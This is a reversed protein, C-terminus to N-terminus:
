LVDMVLICLEDGNHVSLFTPQNYLLLVSLLIPSPLISSHFDSMIERKVFGHM